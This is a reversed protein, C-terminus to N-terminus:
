RVGGGPGFRPGQPLAPRPRLRRRQHLDHAPRRVGAPGGPGPCGCPQPGRGLHPRRRPDGLPRRDLDALRAPPHCLPHRWSDPRRAATGLHPGWRQHAAPHRDGGRCTPRAPALHGAALRTPRRRLEPEDPRNRGRETPREGLGDDVTALDHWRGCDSFRVAGDPARRGPPRRRGALRGSTPSSSCRSRGQRRTSPSRTSTSVTACPWGPWSSPSCPPSPPPRSGLSGAAAAASGAPRPHNPKGSTSTPWAPAARAL